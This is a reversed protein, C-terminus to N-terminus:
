MFKKELKVKLREIGFEVLFGLLTGFLTFLGVYLESDM